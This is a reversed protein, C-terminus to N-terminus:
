PKYRSTELEGRDVRRSFETAGGSALIRAQEVWNEREIRGKFDLSQSVRAIDEATWNAIQEYNVVGMSNLRREILVGIGRIRKLDEIPTSRAAQYGARQAAPLAADRPQYAESRVSRLAGLDTRSQRPPGAEGQAGSGAEGRARRDYDRSYATDGGRSLIQAQEVWNERGIRGTGGLLADFRAVDAQSWHAIQSYRSVGQGLLQKEAEADIHSIRQLNDHPTPAAPRVAVAPPLTPMDPPPASPTSRSEPGRDAFAARVSVEPPNAPPAAAGAAAGAAVPATAVEAVVGAAGATSVRPTAQLSAVHPASAAAVLRRPEGEDPTPRANASEGRALRAAYHTEGGKALIHAQEIWNEQSIRGRLGLAKDIRQVDPRQWSAIQEYSRIGLKNLEVELKADIRRIRKLDQAPTLDAAPVTIASARAPAASPPLTVPAPAPMAAPITVPAPREVEGAVSRGLRGAGAVRAQIEPLPDVRHEVGAPVPEPERYLSRRIVCAVAAGIFYAAAMLLLTQVFLAVM